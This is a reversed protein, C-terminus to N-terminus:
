ANGGAATRRRPQGCHICRHLRSHLLKACHSGAPGTMWRHWQAAGVMGIVPATFYLWLSHWLRAPIASALTRAPNMSMGSLPAEVTIYLAVLCGAIIGTFPAIRPTNSAVLIAMMMGMSILCEAIFAVFSGYAGPVTVVYNVPPASFAHGCLAWVLLVGLTGGLCQALAYCAADRGRVKGLSWFALTVAPNMHAGSRQGWPSHILATATLGMLSGILARRLVPDPLLQHMWSGPYEVLTTAIGASVMFMGLAGAEILYEPWHSTLSDVASTTVREDYSFGNGRM